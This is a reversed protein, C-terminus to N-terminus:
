KHMKFYWQLIMIEARIRPLGAYVFVCFTSSPREYVLLANFVETHYLLSTFMVLKKTKMLLQSDHPVINWLLLSVSYLGVTLSLPLTFYLFYAAM